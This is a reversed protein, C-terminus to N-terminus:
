RRLPHTAAREQKLIEQMERTLTKLRVLHISVGFAILLLLVKIWLISVIFIVSFLICGWLLVISIAKARGSVAKFQQYALIYNGFVRHNTL